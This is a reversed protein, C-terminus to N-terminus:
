LHKGKLNPFISELFEDPKRNAWKRWIDESYKWLWQSFEHDSDSIWRGCNCNGCEENYKSHMSCISYWQGKFEPPKPRTDM